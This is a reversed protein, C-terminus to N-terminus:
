NLPVECNVIITLEFLLGHQRILRKERMEPRASIPSLSFTSSAPPLLTLSNKAEEINKAGPWLASFARRVPVALHGFNGKFCSHSDKQGVDVDCSQSNTSEAESVLSFIM